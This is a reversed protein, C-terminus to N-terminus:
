APPMTWAGVETPAQLLTALTKLFRARPWAKAGFRELHQTEQQCDILGYGAASLRRVLTVFAAKSADPAKAFMSEGFFIRGLAVGYLGGVLHGDAYAEVSHAFGLRHLEIYAAEMDATIWTGRQGPRRARACAGIVDAFAEDFAFSFTGKRLTKELSRPVHLHAPELVFRPDPCHWLIPSGDSYWPFCGRSYAHVLREPSLDGGVAVIGDDDALHGPPFLSTEEELLYKPM